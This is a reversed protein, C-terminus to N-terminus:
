GSVSSMGKFYIKNGLRWGFVWQQHNLPTLQSLIQMTGTINDTMTYPINVVIAYGDLVVASRISGLPGYPISIKKGFHFVPIILDETWTLTGTTSAFSIVGGGGVFLNNQIKTMFNAQDIQEMQALYADFFPNEGESPYTYKMFTTQETM